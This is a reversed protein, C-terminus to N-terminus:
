GVQRAVILKEIVIIGTVTHIVIVRHYVCMCVVSPAGVGGRM